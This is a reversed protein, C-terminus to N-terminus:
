NMYFTYIEIDVLAGNGSIINLDVNLIYYIRDLSILYDLYDIVKEYDDVTMSVTIKVFKLNTSIDDDFPNDSNDSFSIDYNTVESLGSLNRVMILENYLVAQNFNDPLYPLLQEIVQYDINQEEILLNNIDQQIASIDERLNALKVNSIYTLSLYSILTIFFVLILLYLPRSPVIKKGFVDVKRM